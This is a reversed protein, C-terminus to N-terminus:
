LCVEVKFGDQVELVLVGLLGQDQGHWDQHGNGDVVDVGDKVLVQCCAQSIGGDAPQVIGVLDVQDDQADEDGGNGRHDERGHTPGKGFFIIEQTFM